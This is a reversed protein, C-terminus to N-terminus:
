TSKKRGVVVIFPQSIYSGLKVEDNMKVAVQRQEDGSGPPGFKDWFNAAFEETLVCFNEMNMRRQWPPEHQAEKTIM